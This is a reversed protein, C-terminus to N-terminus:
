TAVNQREVNKSEVFTSIVKNGIIGAIEHKVNYDQLAQASLSKRYYLQYFESKKRFIKKLHFESPSWKTSFKNPM